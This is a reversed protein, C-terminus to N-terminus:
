LRPNPVPLLGWNTRLATSTEATYTYALAGRHDGTTVASVLAPNPNVQDQLWVGCVLPDQTKAGLNVTTPLRHWGRLPHMAQYFRGEWNSGGDAVTSMIWQERFYAFSVPGVSTVPAGVSDRLPAASEPPIEWGKESLYTQGRGGIASPADARLGLPMKMLYLANDSGCGAVFISGGFAHVGRRWRVVKTTLDIPTLWTSGLFQTVGREVRYVATFDGGKHSGLYVVLDDVSTASAIVLDAAGQPYLLGPTTGYGSIGGIASGAASPNAWWFTPRKLVTKASWQGPANAAPTGATWSTAYSLLFTDQCAHVHFLRGAALGSASFIGGRGPEDTAADLPTSSIVSVRELDVSTAPLPLDTVAM